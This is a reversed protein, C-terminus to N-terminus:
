EILCFTFIFSVKRKYNGLKVVTNDLLDCIGAVNPALDVDMVSSKDIEQCSSFVAAAERDLTKQSSRFKKNLIEYPVQFLAPM